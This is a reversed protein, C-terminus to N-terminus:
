FRSEASNECIHIKSCVMQGQRQRRIGLRRAASLRLAATGAAARCVRSHDGGRSLGRERECARRAPLAAARGSRYLWVRGVAGQWEAVRSSSFVSCVIQYIIKITYLPPQPCKPYCSIKKLNLHFLFLFHLRIALNGLQRCKSELSICVTQTSHSHWSM